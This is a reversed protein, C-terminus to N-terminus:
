RTDMGPLTLSGMCPFPFFECLWHDRDVNVAVLFVQKLLPTVGGHRPLYWCQQQFTSYFEIQNNNPAM